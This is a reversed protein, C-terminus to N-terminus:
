PFSSCGGLLGLRMNQVHNHKNPSETMEIAAFRFRQIDGVELDYKGVFLALPVDPGFVEPDLLCAGAAVGDILM